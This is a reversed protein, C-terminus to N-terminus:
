ACAGPAKPIVGAKLTQTAMADAPPAYKDDGVDIVNTFEHGVQALAVDSWDGMWNVVCRCRMRRYMCVCVCIGGSPVHFLSYTLRMNTCPVCVCLHWWLSRRVFILVHMDCVCPQIYIYDRLDAGCLCGTLALAYM